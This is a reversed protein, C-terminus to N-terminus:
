FPHGTGFLLRLEFWWAKGLRAKLLTTGAATALFDTIAVRDVISIYWVHPALGAEAAAKM